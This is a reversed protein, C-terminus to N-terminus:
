AMSNIRQPKEKLSLEIQRKLTDKIAESATLVKQAAFFDLMRFHDVDPKLLIDPKRSKLKETIIAGQLLQLSGFMIAFGNPSQSVEAHPGGTVDVAITFDKESGIIDFPLPNITGGDILIREQYHVPKFAGPIAISAAIAPLLEGKTFVLQDRAHFDTAVAHLPIDLEEFQRPVTTPWFRSLLKEGDLLLPNGNKFRGLRVSIVATAVTTKKSALELIFQRIDKGSMGGAYCAGIVSGISAGVINAPRLGLEDLTELVPIHALGRAGGAGLVLHFTDTSKKVQSEM